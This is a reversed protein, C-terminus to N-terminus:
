NRKFLLRAQLENLERAPNTLFWEDAAGGVPLGLVWNKTQRRADEFTTPGLCWDGRKDRCRGLWGESGAVWGVNMVWAVAEMTRYGGWKGHVRSVEVNKGEEGLKWTVDNVREWKLARDKTKEIKGNNGGSKAQTNRAIKSPTPCDPIDARFPADM